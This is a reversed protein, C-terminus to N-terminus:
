RVQKEMTVKGSEESGVKAWGTKQLINYMKPFKDPFTAVSLRPIGHERAREEVGAMLMPFLGTGQQSPLVGALWIHLTAPEGNKDLPRPHAFIFAFPGPTSTDAAFIVISVPHSLREQWGQLTSHHTQPQTLDINFIRNSLNLVTRIEDSSALHNFTQIRM